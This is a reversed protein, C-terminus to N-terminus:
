YINHRVGDSCFWTRNQMVVPKNHTMTPMLAPMLSTLNDNACTPAPIDVTSLNGSQWAAVMDDAWMDQFDALTTNEFFQTEM